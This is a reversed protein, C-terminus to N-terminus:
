LKIGLEACLNHFVRGQARCDDLPNHTIELGESLKEWKKESQEKSFGRISSYMWFISSLCTAKFGIEPADSPKFKEYYNKLWSWDFAAPRAVWEIKQKNKKFKNLKISLNNMAENASVSNEIIRKYEKIISEDKLWLSSLTDKDPKHSDIQEIDVLFSDIEKGNPDMFVIGLSIMNNNIVCPGDAEIDFHAYVKSM